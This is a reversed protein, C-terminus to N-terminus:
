LKVGDDDIYIWSGPRLGWTIKKGDRAQQAYVSSKTKSQEMFTIGEYNIARAGNASVYVPYEKGAVSMNTVGPNHIARHAALSAEKLTEQKAIDEMTENM